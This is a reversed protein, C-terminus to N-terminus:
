RTEIQKDTNNLMKFEVLKSNLKILHIRITNKLVELIYKMYSLEDVSKRKNQLCTFVRKFKQIQWM